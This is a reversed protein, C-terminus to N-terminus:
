LIAGDDGKGYKKRGEKKRMLWQMLYLLIIVHIFYQRPEHLFMIAGV